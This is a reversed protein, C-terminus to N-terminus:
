RFWGPVVSVSYRCVQVLWAGLGAAGGSARVAGGRWAGVGVGGLGVAEVIRATIPLM